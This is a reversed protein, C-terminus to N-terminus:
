TNHYFYYKNQHYKILFVASNLIFVQSPFIGFYVRCRFWYYLRQWFADVSVLFTMIRQQGNSGSTGSNCRTLITIVPTSTYTSDAVAYESTNLKSTVFFMFLAVLVATFAVCTVREIIIAKKM